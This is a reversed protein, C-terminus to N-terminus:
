GTGKQEFQTSRILRQLVFGGLIMYFNMEAEAHSYEAAYVM